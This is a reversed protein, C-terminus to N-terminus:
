STGVDESSHPKRCVAARSATEGFPSREDQIGVCTVHEIPKCLMAGFPSGIPLQLTHQSSYITATM